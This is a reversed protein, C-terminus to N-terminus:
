KLKIKQITNRKLMNKLAVKWQEYTIFRNRYYMYTAGTDSKITIMSNEESYDYIESIIKYHKGKTLGFCPIVCIITKMTKDKESEVYTNIKKEM